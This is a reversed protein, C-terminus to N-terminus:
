GSACTNKKQGAVPVHFNREYKLINKEPLILKVSMTM